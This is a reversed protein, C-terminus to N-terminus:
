SQGALRMYTAKLKALTLGQQLWLSTLMWEDADMPRNFLRQFLKTTASKNATVSSGTAFRSNTGGSYLAVLKSTSLKGPVTITATGDSGVQALGLATKGNYFAVSGTPTGGTSTVKATLRTGNAVKAPTLQVNTPIGTPAVTGPNRGGGVATASVAATSVSSSPFGLTSVTNTNTIQNWQTQQIVKNTNPDNIIIQLSGFNLTDTEIANTDGVAAAIEHRSVFVTGFNYTVRIRAAEDRVVIQAKTFHAGSAMVLFLGPTHRGVVSQIVLPDFLLKGASAGASASGISVPATAATNFSALDILGGALDGTVNTAPNSPVGTLALTIQGIALLARGELDQFEPRFTRRARRAAPALPM